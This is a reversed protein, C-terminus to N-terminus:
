TVAKQIHRFRESLEQDSALRKRISDLVGGVASYSKLGFQSGIAAFSDKRMTRILHIAVARPENFRGRRCKVLESEDIQYHSCVAQVIRLAQPALSQSYPVQPHTKQEFFRAKLHNISAEDGLIPPWKRGSFVRTIEENDEEGMYRRYAARQGRKRPSLISLFFDKYLWNWESATSLYGLHSSWTYLEPRDEIGARVPNRHIYRVLQLLYSDGDVVIAKFRGRFLQGDLGHARNYRQTYVGNIHRMCRSLNGLPTHILLHYHNAMLCFAGIRVDWLGAAEQLLAVFGLYDADDEYVRERRRGRNMAHYWAGPFEIRLPRSM